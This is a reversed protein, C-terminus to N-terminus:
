SRRTIEPDLSLHPHLVKAAARRRDIAIHRAEYVVGFAGTGIVRSLRWNGLVSGSRDPSLDVAADKM